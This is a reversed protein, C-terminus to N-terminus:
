KFIVDRPTRSMDIRYQMIFSHFLNSKIERHLDVYESVSRFFLGSKISKLTGSLHRLNMYLM